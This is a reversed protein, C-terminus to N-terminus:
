STVEPRVEEIYSVQVSDLFLERTELIEAGVRRKEAAFSGTFCAKCRQLLNTEPSKLFLGDPEEGLPLM